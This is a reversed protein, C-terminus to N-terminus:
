SGGTTLGDRAALWDERLLDYVLVDGFTGGTGQAAATLRGALRYGQREVARASRVNVANVTCSLAHLGLTEFAYDLLLRKVDRGLGRGRDSPWLFGMGTNGTGNERDIARLSATGICTDEEPRCIAFVHEREDLGAIWHEYSLVSAPIRAGTFATEEELHSARSLEVADRLEIPRLWVQEGILWQEAPM